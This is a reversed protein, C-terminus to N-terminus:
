SAVTWTGYDNGGPNLETIGRDYQINMNGFSYYAFSILDNEMTFSTLQGVLYSAIESEPDAIGYIPTNIDELIGTTSSDNGIIEELNVYIPEPIGGGGGISGNLSDLTTTYHGDAVAYFKDNDTVDVYLVGEEKPIEVPPPVTGGAPAVKYTYFKDATADYRGRRLLGFSEFASYLKNVENEVAGNTVFSKSDKQLKDDVKLIARANNALKVIKSKM